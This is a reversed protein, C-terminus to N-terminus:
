EGLRNARRRARWAEDSYGLQYAAIGFGRWAAESSPDLTTASDFHGYASEYAGRALALEGSGTLTEARKILLLATPVTGLGAVLGVEDRVALRAVVEGSHTAASLNSVPQPQSPKAVAVLAQGNVGKAVRAGLSAVVPAYAYVVLAMTTWWLCTAVALLVAWVPGRRAPETAGRAYPVRAVIRSESAESLLTHAFSLQERGSDQDTRLEDLWRVDQSFGADFMAAELAMRMSSATDFRETVDRTLAGEIVRVVGEPVDPRSEQVRPIDAFLISALTEHVGGGEFPTDGVLLEYFLVGAAWLDARQDIARGGAQEPALYQPTGVVTGTRTLKISAEGRAVGFDILKVSPSGGAEPIHLVVNSPKLDRHIVDADHVAELGGLVAHMVACAAGVSLSGLRKLTAHLDEGFLREMVIYPAGSQLHGIDFVRVVHPSVV